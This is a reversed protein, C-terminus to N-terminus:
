GDLVNKFNFAIGQLIAMFIVKTLLNVQVEAM